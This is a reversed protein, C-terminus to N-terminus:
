TVNDDFLCVCIQGGQYPDSGSTECRYIYKADYITERVVQSKAWSVVAWHTAVMGLAPIAVHVLVNGGMDAYM